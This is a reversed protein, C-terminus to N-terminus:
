LKTHENLAVSSTPAGMNIVRTQARAGHEQLPHDGRPAPLRRPRSGQARREQLATRQRGRLFTGASAGHEGAQTILVCTVAECFASPFLVGHVNTGGAAPASGLEPGRPSGPSVAEPACVAPARDKRCYPPM